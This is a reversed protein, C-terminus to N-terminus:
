FPVVPLLENGLRGVSTYRLNEDVIAGDLPM